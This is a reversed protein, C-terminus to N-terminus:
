GHEMLRTIQFLSFLFFSPLFSLGTIWHCQWNSHNKTMCILYICSKSANQPIIIVSSLQLVRTFAHGMAVTNVAYELHVLSPDFLCGLHFESLYRGSGHCPRIQLLMTYLRHFVVLIINLESSWVPPSTWHWCKRHRPCTYLQKVTTQVSRTLVV